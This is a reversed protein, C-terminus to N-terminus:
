VLWYPEDQTFELLEQKPLLVKALEKLKEQNILSVFKDLGSVKKLWISVSRLLYSSM